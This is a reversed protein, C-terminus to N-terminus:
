FYPNLPKSIIDKILHV